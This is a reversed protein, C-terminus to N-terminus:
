VMLRGENRFYRDRIADGQMYALAAGTVFINPTDWVQGYRNTVSDGPSFGM